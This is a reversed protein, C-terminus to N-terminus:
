RPPPTFKHGWLAGETIGYTPVATEVRLGEWGCEVAYLEPSYVYFSLMQDNTHKGLTNMMPVELEGARDLARGVDDISAMEVMLHLMSGPGPKPALGFSHHRPNCGMFYTPGATNREVFGLVREYFDFATPVDEASVIVHGLGMDGTVFGSVLPTNILVHDLIPGYFLEVANGAPDDFRAFGTVRREACEPATGATVKIGEAEVDRVVAALDRAHMVEFGLAGLSPEAAPTVVIRAPYEDLRFYLSDPDNGDVRMMGMFDEGFRRWAAIDPSNLRVYGLSTVAM